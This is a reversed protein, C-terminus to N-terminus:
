SALEYLDDVGPRWSQAAPEPRELEDITDSNKDAYVYTDTAYDAFAVVNSSPHEIRIYDHEDDPLM